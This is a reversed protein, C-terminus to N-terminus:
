TTESRCRDRDRAWTMVNRPARSARLEAAMFQMFPDIHQFFKKYGACLYNLGPEGTPTLLFRHKPCEGHCAFRVECDLCYQPLTTLKAAGFNLQRASNVMDGLSQQTINGLRHQPYVFHDCSYVDGQHELALATGCTERFVCLSPAVGLWNELSIDFIQV